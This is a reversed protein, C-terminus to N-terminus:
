RGEASADPLRSAPEDVDVDDAHGIEPAGHHEAEDLRQAMGQLPAGCYSATNLAANFVMSGAFPSPPPHELGLVEARAGRRHHVLEDLQQLDRM